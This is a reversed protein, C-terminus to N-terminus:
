FCAFQCLMLLAVIAAFISGPDVGAIKLTFIPFIVESCAIYYALTFYDFLACFSTFEIWTINCHNEWHIYVICNM